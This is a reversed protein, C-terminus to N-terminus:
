ENNDGGKIKYVHNNILYDFKGPCDSPSEKENLIDEKDLIAYVSIGDMFMDAIEILEEENVDQDYAFIPTCGTRTILEVQYKSITKGGTSVANRYGMAALQQVGKESEVVIITNSNKICEKNQWYGYLIKSKNCREIYTYKTHWEDPEGFYRGKVGCLAGLSDRIPITIYGSAPDFGVEFEQQVELSINDAEFMKNGYPLYYSLIKESIPKVPSDDEDDEGTSMEKLLKIIQLSEPLEEREQYYDLGLLAHVYKLTEPFSYDKYFSILDFIDASNKNKVINRTYNVTTLNENSYVIVSRADGDPNTASFYNSHKQISKCGINELIKEIFSNDIIYEKLDQANM